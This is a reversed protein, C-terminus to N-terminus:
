FEVHIRAVHAPPPAGISRQARSDDDFAPLEVPRRAEGVAWLVGGTLFVGGGTGILMLGGLVDDFGTFACGHCSAGADEGARFLLGGAITMAAGVVALATGAYVLRRTSPRTRLEVRDWVRTATLRDLSDVALQARTGDDRAVELAAGTRESPALSRVADWSRADVVYGRDVACGSALLCAFALPAFPRLM